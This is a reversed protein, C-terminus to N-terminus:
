QIEVELHQQPGREKRNPPSDSRANKQARGGGNRTESIDKLGVKGAEEGKIYRM